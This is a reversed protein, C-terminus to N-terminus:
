LKLLKFRTMTSTDVIFYIGKRLHELAIVESFSNVIINHITEGELNQILLIRGIEKSKVTINELFPNPVVSFSVSGNNEEISTVQNKVCRISYGAQKNAYNKVLNDSLYNTSRYWGFQTDLQSSTWWYAYKEINAFNGGDYRCGAPLGSFLSENTAGVNPAKWFLTDEIKMKGGAVGNGGLLDSYDTWENDTPIHWGMPCINREDITVFWNYLNGYTESITDSENYTSFAATNAVQWENNLVLSEISDGNSFLKTKLNESMWEQGNELNITRYFNDEIDFVGSGQSPFQALVTCSFCILSVLITFCNQSLLYGSVRLQNM